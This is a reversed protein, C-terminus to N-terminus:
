SGSESGGWDTDIKEIIDKSTAIRRKYRAITEDTVDKAAENGSGHFIRVEHEEIFKIQDEYDKITQAHLDRLSKLNEQM